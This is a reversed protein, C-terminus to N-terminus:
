TPRAPPWPRRRSTPNQATETVANIMDKLVTSFSPGSEQQGGLGGAIKATDDRMRAISAYANAAAAIPTSM